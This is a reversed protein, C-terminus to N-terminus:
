IMEINKMKLQHPPLETSVSNFALPRRKRIYDGGEDDKNVNMTNDNKTTKFSCPNCRCTIGKPNIEIENRLQLKGKRIPCEFIIFKTTLEQEKNFNVTTPEDNSLEVNEPIPQKKLKSM